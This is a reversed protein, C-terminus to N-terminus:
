ENPIVVLPPKKAGYLLVCDWSCFDLYKDHTVGVMHVSVFGCDEPKISWSDCGNRDCHTALSM